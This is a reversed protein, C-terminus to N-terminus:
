RHQLPDHAVQDVVRDLMGGRAPGDCELDFCRIGRTRYPESNAILPRPDRLPVLALEEVPEEPPVCPMPVAGAGTESEGDRLRGGFCMAATQFEHPVRRPRREAQNKGDPSLLRSASSCGTTAGM